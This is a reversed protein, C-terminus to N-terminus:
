GNLTRNLRKERRRQVSSPIDMAERYKAVTRRAIDVGEKKLADVLMDDSLIHDPSEQDILRRIQDRVSQAAHADAGDTGNVAGTFFYRLEFLGRPTMMYKNSTVRSVTSEHMGIAEAVVKLNLPRLGSVGLDFFRQQQRVIETAVALITRMRQDLSRSLWSGNQLCDAVFQKEVSNMNRSVRRAYSRDLLVRPLASDEIEVRWDGEQSRSVIVDPIVPIANDQSFAHGPRPSLSRIIKVMDALQASGVGCLRAIKGYDRQALLDLRALLLQFAPTLRRAALLQLSLCERLDSAFIGAPDFGKCTAWVRDVEDAAFGMETCFAKKDFRLYGDDDLNDALAFAIALRRKDPFTLAIQERVHQRLSRSEPVQTFDFGEGSGSAAQRFNVDRSSDLKVELFPNKEAEGSLFQELEQRTMQLLRISQLLQPTLSLSQAQKLQLRTNLAM